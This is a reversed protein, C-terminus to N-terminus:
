WGAEQVTEIANGIELLKADQYPKGVLQIGMPLGSSHRGCPLTIAPNGTLNFICTLRTLANGVLEEGTENEVAKQGLWPAVIPTTPTILVDVHRMKAAFERRKLEMLRLSQVYHEALIFQGQMLGRRIDDGYLHAEAGMRPGHWSSAEALQIALSASRVDGMDPTDLEVLVAGLRQCQTMVAETAARIEPDLGEFFHRRMVGIKLGLLIAERRRLLREELPSVPYGQDTDVWAALVELIPAADVCSRTIIGIHDLTWCFPIMGETKILEYTPKFGVLGCLAAPVRISGGTDSGISFAASGTAVSVASGSSSGGAIRSGDYPNPPTGYTENVGTIGYCFEHLNTKGVLIAGAKRLMAVVTADQDPVHAALSRSGGTTLIGKTKFVDKCSYPVGALPLNRTTSEDAPISDAEKELITIYARTTDNLDRARARCRGITKATATSSTARLARISAFESKTMSDARFVSVPRPRFTASTVIGSSEYRM